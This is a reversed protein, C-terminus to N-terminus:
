LDYDIKLKTIKIYNHLNDDCFEMIYIIVNKLIINIMLKISYYSDINEMLIKMIYQINKKKMKMFFKKLQLM